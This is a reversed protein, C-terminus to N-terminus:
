WNLGNKCQEVADRDIKCYLKAVMVRDVIESLLDCLSDYLNEDSRILSCSPLISTLALVDEQIELKNYSAQLLRVFAKVPYSENKYCHTKGSWPSGYVYLGERENSFRVIPNDDNLLSAGEVYKLWLQTQTSKGTGSKGLFLCAAKKNNKAQVPTPAVIVSSHISIAGFKICMQSFWIRILSSLAIYVYRDTYDLYVNCNKTEIDISMRHIPSNDEVCLEILFSGDLRYLETYGFDAVQREILVKNTDESASASNINVYPLSKLVDISNAAIFSDTDLQFDVFSPLASELHERDSQVVFTIDAIKYILLSDM